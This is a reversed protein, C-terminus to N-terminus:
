RKPRLRFNSGSRSSTMPSSSAVFSSRPVYRAGYITGSSTYSKAGSMTVRREQSTGCGEASSCALSSRSNSPPLASKTKVIGIEMKIASALSPVSSRLSRRCVTRNRLLRNVNARLRTCDRSVLPSCRPNCQQANGGALLPCSVAQPPPPTPASDCELSRAADM